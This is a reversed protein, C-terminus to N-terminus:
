INPINGVYQSFTKRIDNYLTFHFILHCEDEVEGSECVKFLREDVLTKSLRNTEKKFAFYWM